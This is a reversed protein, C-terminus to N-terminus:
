ELDGGRRCGSARRGRARQAERCITWLAVPCKSPRGRERKRNPRMSLPIERDHAHLSRMVHAVGLHVGRRDRRVAITWVDNTALKGDDLLIAPLDQHSPSPPGAVSKHAGVM